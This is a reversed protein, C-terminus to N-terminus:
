SQALIEKIKSVHPVMGSLKVQGDVVLAPTVMVGFSMIAQLDEVKEIECDIGLEEAATAAKEALRRCNSCGPGLIQIKM